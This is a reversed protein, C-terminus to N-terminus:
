IHILSLEYINDGDADSPNDFSPRAKFFFASGNDRDVVIFKDADAGGTISSTIPGPFKVALLEETTINGPIQTDHSVTSYEGVIFSNNLTKGNVEVESITAVPVQNEAYNWHAENDDNWWSPFTPVPDDDINNVVLVMDIM